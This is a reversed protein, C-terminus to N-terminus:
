SQSGAGFRDALGLSTRVTNEYDSTVMAPASIGSNAPIMAYAGLGSKHSDNSSGQVYPVINRSSPGAAWSGAFAPATGAAAFATLALAVSLYKRSFM